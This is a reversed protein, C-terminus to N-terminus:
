KMQYSRRTYVHSIWMQFALLMVVFITAIFAFWGQNSSVSIYVGTMLLLASPIATLLHDRRTAPNVNKFFDENESDWVLM